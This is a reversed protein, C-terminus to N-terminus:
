QGARRCKEGKERVISSSNKISINGDTCYVIRASDYGSIIVNEFIIDRFNMAEVVPEDRFGDRATVKCNQMKFTIPEHEPCDVGEGGGSLFCEDIAKQIQETCLNEGQKAGFDTIYCRM